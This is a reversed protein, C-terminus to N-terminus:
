AAVTCGTEAALRRAAAPEFGSLHEVIRRVEDPRQGQQHVRALQVWAHPALPQLAACREFAAAAEGWRRHRMLVLGAGYWARDLRADLAVARQFAALAAADDGQRDCVFGLNFWAPADDPRGTLLRGYDDRAAQLRGCQARLWARQALMRAPLPEPSAAPWADLWALAAANRGLLLCLGALPRRLWPAAALNLPM